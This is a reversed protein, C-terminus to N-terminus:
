QLQGIQKVPFQEPELVSIKYSGGAPLTVRMRGTEVTTASDYPQGNLLIRAHPSQVPVDVQASSKPPLIITLNLRGDYKIEVYLSGVAAPVTGRAWALGALEPRISFNRGGPTLERVGLINQQLWITPGASWGHALSIYYGTKNDAQLSAHPNEKPWRPDYSEWFSTAGEAIMGGWYQRMWALAQQSHGLRALAELVYYGYYPTIRQMADEGAGVKSLVHSYIAADEESTTAGSVVAIANTQWFPGFAGTERDILQTQAVNLMQAAREKYHEALTEEGALHLLRAGDSFARAYEFQIARRAEATDHDFEPAWDVFLSAGNPNEFRGTADVEKDMLLLLGVLQGRIGRLYDLSGHRQFYEAQGIVWIATYSPMGNIHHEIPDSGALRRFTGEMLASDAFVGNIVRGTVDMDGMWQGRDRKPADWIGDQMCLHATYAGTEWIRNLLPDSSEFSARYRVPYFVGDLAILRMRITGSGSPFTVLAYRFASKAGRAEGKPAVLLTQLGLFPADRLEGLSEGYRLGIQFPKDTDSLLTVSGNVERGFDLLLSPAAADGDAPTDVSFEYRRSPNRLQSVANMHHFHAGATVVAEAKEPLMRYRRLYPSIGIYGPWNYMGADSNWQFFDPQSEIAGLSQVRPWNRDDFSPQQWGAQPDLTSVWSSSSWLLPSRDIGPAAAVIKVALVEGMNLQATMRSNAHHSIGLGRVAEIAIVNRGAHLHPGVDAHLVEFVIPYQPHCELEAALDGNVYVKLSRPGALYITAQPSAARLYFVARFYHPAIKEEQHHAVFKGADGLAAADGATWIYEERLRTHTEPVTASLNRSPDLRGHADVWTQAPAPLGTSIAFTIL